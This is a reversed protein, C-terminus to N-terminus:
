ISSVCRIRRRTRRSPIRMQTSALALRGLAGGTAAEAAGAEMAAVAEEVSAEEVVVVM